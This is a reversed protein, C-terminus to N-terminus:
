GSQQGTIVTGVFVAGNATTFKVQVDRGFSLNGDLTFLISAEEGAELEPNVADKSIAPGAAIGKTVIVFTADAMATASLTETDLYLYEVGALRVETFTVKQASQNQVYVAVRESQQVGNTSAGDFPDTAGNVTGDTFTGDHLVLTGVDGADYGVIEVSEIQPSGSIQASSFFGQSFVFIISGGVVAIAVLLLTAIVPAVARRSILKNNTHLKTM